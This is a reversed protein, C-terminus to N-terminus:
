KRNKYNEKPTRIAIGSSRSVITAKPFHSSLLEIKQSDEEIKSNIIISSILCPPVGILIAAGSSYDLPLGAVNVLERAKRGKDTTENYADYDTIDPLMAGPHELDLHNIVFVIQNEGNTFRKGFKCIEDVNSDKKARFFDVCCFTEGDEIIGHLQGSELGRNAISKIVEESYSTGHFLDGKKIVIHGTEDVLPMSPNGEINLSEKFKHYRDIIFDCQKIDKVGECNGLEPENDNIYSQLLYNVYNELLIVVISYLIDFYAMNKSNNVIDKIKNLVESNNIENITKVNGIKKIIEEDFDYLKILLYLKLEEITKEHLDKNYLRKYVIESFFSDSNLIDALKKYIKPLEEKYQKGYYNYLKVEEDYYVIFDNISVNLKEM